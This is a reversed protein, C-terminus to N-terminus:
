FLAVNVPECVFILLINLTNNWGELLDQDEAQARDRYVKWIRANDTAEEGFRFTPDSCLM